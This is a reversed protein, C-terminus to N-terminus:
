EANKEEGGKVEEYNKTRIVKQGEGNPLPDFGAEERIEDVWFVGSSGIKDIQVAFDFIDPVLIGSVQIRYGAEYKSKTLLKSNFEDQISKTLPKILNKKYAKMNSDLEAKDGHILSSPIGIAHAVDDILSNKIKTLEETSQNTAGVKNTFEEYDIGKVKPFVAVSSTKFAKLLRDIYSQTREQKNGENNATGTTEISVGARIQNNRMAIEIIRGFIEGYDKFLSDTIKNLKENDYEMYIVESMKFTRKFEFGKVTVGKFSDGYIATETKYFDDAILLQDDDTKIVLVENDFILKYFFKKWFISAAHNKNPRVNLIYDWDFSEKEKNKKLSFKATSMTRAVYNIVTDIALKKLYARSATDTEIDLGLLWDDSTNVGRISNIWTNILGM